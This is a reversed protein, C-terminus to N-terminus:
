QEAAKKPPPQVVRPRVGHTKAPADGCYGTADITVERMACAAVIAADVEAAGMKTAELVKRLVDSRHPLGTVDLEVPDSDALQVTVRAREEAKSNRQFIDADPNHYRLQSLHQRVFHRAATHGDGNRGFVVQL